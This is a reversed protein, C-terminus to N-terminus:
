GARFSEGAFRMKIPISGSVPLFDRLPSRRRADVGFTGRTTVRPKKEAATGEVGEPRGDIGFLPASPPLPWCSEFFGRLLRSIVSLVCMKAMERVRIEQWAASSSAALAGKRLSLRMFNGLAVLNWLFNPPGSNGAVCCQVLSRTRREAFFPAHLEGFGGLEVPFEPSGFKRGRLVPRPQSHAKGCLFACSTGWLWWTGCSIRPVRIEQWSASSLVAHAGKRASLRM